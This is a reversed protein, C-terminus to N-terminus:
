EGLYRISLSTALEERYTNSIPVSIGDELLVESHRISRISNKNVIFSRHTRLFYQQNLSKLLNDMSSYIMPDTNCRTKIKIYNKVSEFYLIDNLKFKEFNSKGSSKVYYFKEDSDSNNELHNMCKNIALLFRKFDFPKLIFDQVELNFGEVAYESYASIMIILMNKRNMSNILDIGNIQPMNVDIILIDINATMLRNIGELPDELAFGLKLSPIKETYAKLLDVSAKEDDIIGVTYNM